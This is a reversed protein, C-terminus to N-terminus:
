SLVAIGSAHWAVTLSNTDTAVVDAPTTDLLVYAVLPNVRGNLTGSARIVAYRATISGGSATWVADNADFKVSGGTRTWVVSALTVGGTTYGNANAVENTLNASVTHTSASPTYSSTHLTCVFTNSNMDFTGDGIYERFSEYFTISAAM